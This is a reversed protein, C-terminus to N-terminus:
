GGGHSIDLYSSGALVDDILLLNDDEWNDEEDQGACIAQLKEIDALPLATIREHYQIQDTAQRTQIATSNLAENHTTKRGTVSTKTFIHHIHHSSSPGSKRSSM